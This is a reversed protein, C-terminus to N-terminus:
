QHLCGIPAFARYRMDMIPWGNAINGGLTGYLKEIPSGLKCLEDFLGMAKLVQLGSPQLLVGAGVPSPEPTKELVTVDHRPALLSALALGATGAGIIAIKM